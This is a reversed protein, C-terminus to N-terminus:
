LKVVHINEVRVCQDANIYEFKMNKYHQLKVTLYMKILSNVDFTM